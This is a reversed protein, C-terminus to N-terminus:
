RPRTQPPPPLEEFGSRAPRKIPAVTLVPGDGNAPETEPTTSEEPEMRFPSAVSDESADAANQRRLQPVSAAILTPLHTIAAARWDDGVSLRLTVMEVGLVTTVFDELSGPEEKADFARVTLGKVTALSAYAEAAVGNCEATSRKPVSLVHVVRQPQVDYLVQMILRTEGECAPGKGAFPHGGPRYNATPFNRNLAVGRSNEPKRALLGDPNAARLLVLQHDRFADPSEQLQRAFSDLWNVAIVDEGDLGAVILTCKDGAGIRRVHLPQGQASQGIVKWKGESAPQSAPANKNSPTRNAVTQATVDGNTPAFENIPRKWTSWASWLPVTASLGANGFAPPSSAPVDQPRSFHPFRDVGAELAPGDGGGIETADQPLSEVFRPEVDAWTLPLIFATNQQMAWVAGAAGCAAAAFLASFRM